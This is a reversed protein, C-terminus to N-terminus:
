LEIVDEFEREVGLFQGDSSFRTVGVDVDTVEFLTSSKPIGNEVDWLRVWIRTLYTQISLGDDDDDDDDDEDMSVIRGYWHGYQIFVFHQGEIRFQEEGVM